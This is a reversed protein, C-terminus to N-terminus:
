EGAETGTKAKKTRASSQVTSARLVFSLVLSITRM